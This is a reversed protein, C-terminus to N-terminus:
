TEQYLDKPWRRHLWFWQEPHERIWQELLTNVQRLLTQTKEESSGTTPPYMLPHFIVRCKVGKQRVVQVPLLPYNFKLSLKAIAPATMAEHNFFPVPVGDNMKQDMLMFIHTGQHLAKLIQKAGEAGKPIVAHGLRRNVWNVLANVLPNNLFRVVQAIKLGRKHAVYSGLGWHGYHASWLLGPKQTAILHDLNKLGEVRYFSDPSFVAQAPLRVYEFFLRGLNQWMKKIIKKQAQPSLDPLALQLNRYAVKNIPLLPGLSGGLLCGLHSMWQFPLILGTAVVGLFFFAEVLYFFGKLCRKLLSLFGNKEM